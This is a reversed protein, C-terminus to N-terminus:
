PEYIVLTHNESALEEDIIKAIVDWNGGALGAGILPYAIRKGFFANKICKMASRIAEYDAKNRNGRWDFQTYANVVYFAHDGRRVLVSSISGLKEVSGKPTQLDAEYAEPFHARIQKAIGAGMVCMCNCGHVIVDFHGEQALLLLDGKVTIGM